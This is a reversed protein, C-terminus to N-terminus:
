CPYTRSTTPTSDSSIRSRAHFETSSWSPLAWAVSIWTTRTHVPNPAKQWVRLGPIRGTLMNQPNENNTKLMESGKVSAVAGTVSGRRQTGYGVVVLEDMVQSDPAMSVNLTTRGNLKENIPTYGVYSFLLTANDPAKISYKGDMDTSTGTTSGKVMVTAGILPENNEDTVVGSVNVLTQAQAAVPFALCLLIMAVFRALRKIKDPTKTM